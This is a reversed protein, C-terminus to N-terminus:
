KGLDCNHLHFYYVRETEFIETSDISFATFMVTDSKSLFQKWIRKTKWQGDTCVTEQYM